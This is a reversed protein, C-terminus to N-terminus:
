FNEYDMSKTDGEAPNCDLITDVGAGCDFSDAGPGGM